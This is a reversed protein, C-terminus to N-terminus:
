YEREVLVSPYTHFSPCAIVIKMTFLYKAFYQQCASIDTTDNPCANFMSGTTGSNIMKFKYNLVIYVDFM